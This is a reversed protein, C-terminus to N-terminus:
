LVMEGNFVTFKLKLDKTLCNLNAKYGKMIKGEKKFGALDAPYESAMRISEALDIGVQTVGNRVAKVMTLKSGSLIGNPLVYRDKKKIHRYPGEKCEAVADTIYFLRKGMIRKTIKVMEFSVHIGDAIISAMANENLFVAGPLGPARHHLPSMANYLHTVMKIGRDFGKQAEEFTANSHGASVLVGNNNLLGITRKDCVEPALTMMKIVGDARKLFLNLKQYDPKCIYKTIHAGKKLPNLFPGELQIGKVAQHRNQKVVDVAKNFVEFSNTALTIFFSTTGSKVLQSSVSQLSESDTYQSFLIKGAGYIQLDIFGPVLYGGDCDVRPTDASLQNMECVGRIVGDEVVLAKDKIFQNGSFIVANVFAKM